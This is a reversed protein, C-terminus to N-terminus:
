GLGRVSCLSSAPLAGPLHHLFLLCEPAPCSECPSLAAHSSRMIHWRPPSGGLPGLHSPGPEWGLLFPYPPRQLGVELPRNECSTAQTLCALCSGWLLSQPFPYPWAQAGPAAATTVWGTAQGDAAEQPGLSEMVSHDQRVPARDAEPSLRQKAAKTRRSNVKSGPSWVWSNLAQRETIIVLHSCQRM